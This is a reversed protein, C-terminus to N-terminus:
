QDCGVMHIDTKAVHTDLTRHLTCQAEVQPLCPVDQMLVRFMSPAKTGEIQRETSRHYPIAIIVKRNDEHRPVWCTIWTNGGPSVMPNSIEVRVPSQSVLMVLSLTMVMINLTM